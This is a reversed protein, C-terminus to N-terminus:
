SLVIFICCLKTQMTLLLYSFYVKARVAIRLPPPASCHPRSGGKPGEPQVRYAEISLNHRLPVRSPRVDVGDGIKWGRLLKVSDAGGKRPDRM